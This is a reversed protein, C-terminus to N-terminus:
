TELDKPSGEVLRELYMREDCRIMDHYLDTETIRGIIGIDQFVLNFFYFLPAPRRIIIEDKYKFFLFHYLEEEYKTLNVFKDPASFVNPIKACPKHDERLNPYGVGYIRCALPRVEYILCCGNEDLFICPFPLSLKDLQLLDKLLVAGKLKQACSPYHANLTDWQSKSKRITQLINDETWNTLLYDLVQVFETESVCFCQSCCECCGKRCPVSLNNERIEREIDEDLRHQLKYLGAVISNENISGHCAAKPKGSGCFCLLEEKM